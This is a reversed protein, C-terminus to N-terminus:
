TTRKTKKDHYNKTNYLALAALGWWLLAVTDDTFVPLVLSAVAIGVGSAFLGLSLWDKRQCYLRYLVTGFLGIFLLLGIIGTEHAVFLYFNEVILPQSSYLSASGTSGIGLGFPNNIVTNLTTEISEFRQEDSDVVSGSEPNNHFIVQQIFPHDSFVVFLTSIAIVIVGASIAIEKLRSRFLYFLVILLGIMLAVYASRSYTSWVVAAIIVSAVTLLLKMKLSVSKRYQGLYSAILVMSSGAVIGLPNPGRLTGNIRIFDPNKDVTLYPAITDKSYGIYALIDKPLVAVQLFAFLLSLGAASLIPILITTRLNPRLLSLAAVIGFFAVYRTDIVLGAIGATPNQISGFLLLIHFVIFITSLLLLVDSFIYRYLKKTYIPLLLIVFICFILIEKWAKIVETYTPLQSSLFVSLPAHFPVLIFIVGVLMTAIKVLTETAKM